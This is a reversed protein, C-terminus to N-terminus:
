GEGPTGPSAILDGREITPWIAATCIRHGMREIIDVHRVQRFGALVEKQALVDELLDLDKEVVERSETFVILLLAAHRILPDADMKRLDDVVAGRWQQGYGKHRVDISRFQFAAKVELWFADAPLTFVSADFLSPPERDLRLPAGAPALVVDCRRRNSLKRGVSSPYHVERAVSYHKTLGDAVIAQLPLEDLADLGYVAQELRLEAERAAIADAVQTALIDLDVTM